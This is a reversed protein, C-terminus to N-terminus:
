LQVKLKLQGAGFFVLGKCLLRPMLRSLASAAGVLRRLSVSIKRKQMLAGLLEAVRGAPMNAAVVKTLMFDRALDDERAIREIEIATGDPHRHVSSWEEPNFAAVCCNTLCRGNAAVLIERELRPPLVPPECGEKGVAEDAELFAM